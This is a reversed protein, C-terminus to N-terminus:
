YLELNLPRLLNDNLSFQTNERHDDMSLHFIRKWGNNKM